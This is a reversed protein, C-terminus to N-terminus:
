AKNISGDKYFQEVDVRTKRRLRREQDLEELRKVLAEEDKVKAGKAVASEILMREYRNGAEELDGYTIIFDLDNEERLVLFYVMFVFLSGVIVYPQFWPPRYKRKRTQEGKEKPQMRYAPSTTFRVPRDADAADESPSSSPSASLALPGSHFLVHRPLCGAVRCTM